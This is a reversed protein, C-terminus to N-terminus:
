SAECDFVFREDIQATLKRDQLARMDSVGFSSLPVGKVRTPLNEIYPQWKSGTKYREHLLLLGLRNQRYCRVAGHMHVQHSAAWLSMDYDSRFCTEVHKSVVKDESFWLM